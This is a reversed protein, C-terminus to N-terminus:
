LGKAAIGDEVADGVIGVVGAPEGDGGVDHREVDVAGGGLHVGPQAGIPSLATLNQELLLTMAEDVRGGNTSREVCRPIAAM